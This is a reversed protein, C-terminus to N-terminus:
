NIRTSGLISYGDFTTFFQRYICVGYAIDVDDEMGHEVNKLLYTVVAWLMHIIKKLFTKFNRGKTLIYTNM